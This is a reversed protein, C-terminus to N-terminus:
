RSLFRSRFSNHSPTLYKRKDFAIANLNHGQLRNQFYMWYPRASGPSAGGSVSELEKVSLQKM